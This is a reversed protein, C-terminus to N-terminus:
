YRIQGLAFAAQKRVDANGDKLAATLGDIARPDRLQGLAFAAQARVDANGDKLAIVLPEIARPDRLQGIAFAAQERVDANDDKLASIFAETARKDRLQGLAFIAQQRVDANTDHLVGMLPEVARPDRLQGLGFVAQQRVDPNTDKLAAVLPDFIRPDRLQVLAHMATERVEKDSDKLAETLAAVARPDMKARPGEAAALPTPTPTPTPTPMPTPTPTQLTFPEEQSVGGPIGGTIGGLVGATVGETLGQIVGEVVGATGEVTHHVSQEVTGQVRGELTGQVRDQIVAQSAQEDRASARAKVAAEGPDSEVPRAAEARATGASATQIAAPAEAWPQVSATSLILVAFLAAAAATRARSLGRRPLKPDLIAILRGELQSRHAMALSAGGFVAPFRQSPMARAIDLLEDAYDSGRTGAELVMDDCARERESRLRRAAMWALPNFWYAACVIQAVLHMLCDRRKVHALEHLLVVRLRHEPWADADAPMLVAGRFVGWAMPMAATASQVFRVRRLGLDSALARALPLWPGTANGRTRHSMLWVAALGLLMRAIVIAAGAAWILLLITGTSLALVAVRPAPVARVPLAAAGPAALTRDTSDSTRSPAGTVAASIPRSVATQVFGSPVTVIPLEWRPLALSCAPVLLASVLGFAWVLHRAAASSRRLVAAALGTSALIVTARAVAEFLLPLSLVPM